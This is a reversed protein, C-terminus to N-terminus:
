NQTLVVMRDSMEQRAQFLARVDKYDEAQWLPANLTFSRQVSLNNGVQMFQVGCRGVRNTFVTDAPLAEISWGEPLAIQASEKRQYANRFAMPTKRQDSVFPNMRQVFFDLPKFLLRGSQDFVAPFVAEGRLKLPGDVDHLGDCVLSDYEAGPLCDVGSEKLIEQYEAPECELLNGRIVGAAHGTLRSQTTGKVEEGPILAYSYVHTESTAEAPSVPVTLLEGQTGELLAQVGENFWPVMGYPVYPVGPAFFRVKTTSDFVAVLSRDFQWYKADREFIDDSRDVVYTIRADVGLERLMACYLSTLNDKWGYGHKVVDDATENDKEDLKGKVGKERMATEFDVFSTNIISDRVWYYAARMRQDLDGDPALEALKKKVRDTRACFDEKMWDAISSTMTSWFVIPLSGSGYFCIMRGRLAKSPLSVPEAEFPPINEVTFVLETRDQTLPFRKPVRTRINKWVFEPQSLRTVIFPMISIWRTKSNEFDFHYWQYEGLTLPIDRQVIWGTSPKDSVYSICYEIICDTTVGPISFSTQQIKDGGSKVVTKRFVNEPALEIADGNPLVTRGYVDSVKQEGFDMPALVDAQERGAEGLIRIRRYLRLQVAGAVLLREDVSVKEFIMIAPQGPWTSDRGVAWDSETIEEWVFDAKDASKRRASAIGPLTMALATTGLLLKRLALTM